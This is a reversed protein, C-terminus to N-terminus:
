QDLTGIAEWAAAFAPWGRWAAARPALLRRHKGAARGAPGRRTWRDGPECAAAGLRRRGEANACATFAPETGLALRGKANNTEAFQDATGPSLRGSPM